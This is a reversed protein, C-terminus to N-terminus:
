EPAPVTIPYIKDKSLGTFETSIVVTWLDDAEASWDVTWRLGSFVVLSLAETEEVIIDVYNRPLLLISIVEGSFLASEFYDKQKASLGNMTLEVTSSRKGPIQYNRTKLKTTKSDTKVPKEALEGIAVFTEAIDGDLAITNAFMANDDIDGLSFMAVDGKMAADLAGFELDEQDIGTPLSLAM